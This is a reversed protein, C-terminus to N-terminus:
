AVARCRNSSLALLGQYCGLPPRRARAGTGINLSHQMSVQVTSGSHGAEELQVLTEPAKIQLVACRLLGGAPLSQGFLLSIARVAKPSFHMCPVANPMGQVRTARQHGAKPEERAQQMAVWLMRHQM